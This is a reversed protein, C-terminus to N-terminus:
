QKWIIWDQKIQNLFDDDVNRIDAIDVFVPLISEEIAEKIDGIESLTLVRGADIAIDIDAGPRNTGRARSGFLWIRADPLYKGIIEILLEKYKDEITM